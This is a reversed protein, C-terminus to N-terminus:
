IKQSFLFLQERIMKDKNLRLRPQWTCALHPPTAPCLPCPAHTCGQAHGHESLTRTGAPRPAM